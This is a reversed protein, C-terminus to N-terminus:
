KTAAIIVGVSMGHDYFSLRLKGMPRGDLRPAPPACEFSLNKYILSGNQHQAYLLLINKLQTRIRKESPARFGMFMICVSNFAWPVSSKGVEVFGGM